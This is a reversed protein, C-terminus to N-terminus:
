AFILCLMSWSISPLATCGEQLEGQMDDIWVQGIREPGTEM